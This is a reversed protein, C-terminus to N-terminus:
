EFLERRYFSVKDADIFLPASTPSVTITVTKEQLPPGPDSVKLTVTGAGLATFIVTPGATTNISGIGSTSLSWAFNNNGGTATFTRMQGMGLNIPGSPSLDLLFPLQPNRVWKFNDFTGAYPTDSGAVLDTYYVMGGFGTTLDSDTTSIELNGDVYGKIQDGYAELRLKHWGTTYNSTGEGLPVWAASPRKLLFPRFSPPYYTGWSSNVTVFFFYAQRLPYVGGAPDPTARLFVGYDQEVTVIADFSFYAWAEVANDTENATTYNSPFCFNYGGGGAGIDGLRLAYGDGGPHDVPAPYPASIDSYPLVIVDVGGDWQASLTAPLTGNQAPTFDEQLILEQWCFASPVIILFSIM